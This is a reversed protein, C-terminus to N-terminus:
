SKASGYQERRGDSEGREADLERLAEDLYHFFLRRKAYFSTRSCPIQPIDRLEWKIRMRDFSMNERVSMLIYESVDEGVKVAASEVLDDYRGSRVIEQLENLKTEDIGFEAYSARLNQNEEAIKQWYRQNYERAKERNRSQWKRRQSNIRERNRKRYKRQYARRAQIAEMTMEM